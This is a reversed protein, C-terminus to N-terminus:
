FVLPPSVRTSKALSRVLEVHSGKIWSDIM